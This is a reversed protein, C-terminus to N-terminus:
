HACCGHRSPVAAVRAPRDTAAALLRLWHELVASDAGSVLQWQLKEGAEWCLETGLDNLRARVGDASPGMVLLPVGILRRWLQAGLSWAPDDAIDVAVGEGEGEGEPAGHLLQRHVVADDCSGLQAPDAWLGDCSALDPRDLAGLLGASDQSVLTVPGPAFAVLEAAARGATGAPSGVLLADVSAAANATFAAASDRHV